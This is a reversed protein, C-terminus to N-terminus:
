KNKTEKSYIEGAYGVFDIYEFYRLSILERYKDNLEEIDYARYVLEASKKYYAINHIGDNGVLPCEAGSLLMDYFYLICEGNELDFTGFYVLYNGGKLLLEENWIQMPDIIFNRIKTKAYIAEMDEESPVGIQKLYEPVEGYKLNELQRFYEKEDYEKVHDVTTNVPPTTTNATTETTATTVYSITTNKVSGKGCGYFTVAFIFIAMLLSVIKKLRAKM